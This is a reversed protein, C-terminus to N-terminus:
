NAWKQKSREILLERELFDGIIEKEQETATGHLIVGDPRCTKPDVSVEPDIRIGLEDAKDLIYAATQGSIVAAASDRAQSIGQEAAQEASQSFDSFTQDPIQIKASKLPYIVIFAMFVGCLM